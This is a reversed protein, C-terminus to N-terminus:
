SINECNRWLINEWYDRNSNVKANCKCCLTILDPDCNEKDYHIHHVDHKRFSDDQHMGCLQCTYNDRKRIAEKLKENFKHCYPGYSKGGKWRGNNSGTRDVFKSPNGDGSVRDSYSKRRDPNDAWNKKMTDSRKKNSESTQKTGLLKQRKAEIVEPRNQAIKQSCSICLSVYCGNYVERVKGCGDCIAVIRKWSNPKLGDAYYGFRKFTEENDIM